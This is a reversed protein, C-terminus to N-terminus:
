FWYKISLSILVMLVFSAVLMLMYQRNASVDMDDSATEAETSTEKMVMAALLAVGLTVVAGVLNWWFWFLNDGVVLWLFINVGVGLVLGINMARAKIFKLGVAAIFTALIPGYFVSGIKNIAEIVTDAIDGAFFALVICVVGWFLSAGKSYRAYLEDSVEKNGVLIDETTVASLSNIASSLSSMAASLIAVILLGIIGHPLYDRIFIPIMLDVQDSPIKALFEPTTLVYTGIVLGMLCYLLTIPFRILGNFLLTKQVTKFDKASLLRQVQSQDTGYYSAYLCFGGFVMPLFGFGGDGGIGLVEFNVANLRSADVNATLESWGGLYSWGAVMCIGIGILLIIMQIMDGYVVAKMGGQYSYILTIVGIVLITQWFPIDLISMLILAVAYVMVATGFSRSIQFVASILLRTSRDFRRQLYEYISVVGAKYLRPLLFLSLFIMALPVGFEFSLWQMGGNERLGVFAPASIFSIASLQTAMVSLGLPLWGFSRGGLFYESKSSQGKFLNGLFLFGVSYAVVIVYDLWNM